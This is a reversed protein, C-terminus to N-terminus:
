YTTTRVHLVHLYKLTQPYICNSIIRSKHVSNFDMCLKEMIHMKMFEKLFLSLNSNWSLFCIGLPFTVSFSFFPLVIAEIEQNVGWIAVSVLALRSGIRFELQVGQTHLLSQASLGDGSAKESVNLSLLILFSFIFSLSMSFHYETDYTTSLCVSACCQDEVLINNCCFM